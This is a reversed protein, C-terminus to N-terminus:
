RMGAVYIAMVESATPRPPVPANSLEVMAEVAEIHGNVSAAVASLDNGLQQYEEYSDGGVEDELDTLRRFVEDATELWLKLEKLHDLKTKYFKAANNM